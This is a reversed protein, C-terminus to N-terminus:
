PTGTGVNGAIYPECGLSVGLDLFEHTGFSNDETVMGWTTNVRQPRQDRPGIGDSWHYQDAFCGGPWRLVPIHIAKLAAIIQAQLKYQKPTATDPTWFGNYICHGLHEAFHGYIFRSIKQNSSDSITMSVQSQAFLNTYVFIILSASAIIKKM